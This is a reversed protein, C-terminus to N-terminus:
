RAAQIRGFIGQPRLLLVCLLVLFAMVIKYAPGVYLSGIEQSIGFVLIGVVAGIPTGIGGLIVAAFITLLLEFGLEPIVVAKVGLLFGGLGCFIGVISWLLVMVRRANIGSASALEPNDAVARMRRGMPTFRMLMFVLVLAVIATVAIYVDTPLIRIGNFNWARVLPAEINYQYHGAFFTITSRVAFAVGISAILRSVLPRKALARFVWFYFFLSVVGVTLSAFVGSAVLSLGGFTQAAVAAYAGLTMYDGTAVNPFRAIGFVLTVALAPLALLLGLVTGNIGANVISLWDM